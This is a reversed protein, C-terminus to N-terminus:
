GRVKTNDKVEEVENEAMARFLCFSLIKYFYINETYLYLEEHYNEENCKEFKKWMSMPQSSVTTRRSALFILPSWSLYNVSLLPVTNHFITQIHFKCFFVIFSCVSRTGTCRSDDWIPCKRWNRWKTSIILRMATYICHDSIQISLLVPTSVRWNTSPCILQNYIEFPTQVEVLIM